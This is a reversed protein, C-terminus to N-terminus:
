WDENWQYGTCWNQLQTCFFKLDDFHALLSNINLVAMVFGRGFANITSQNGKNNTYKRNIRPCLNHSYIKNGDVAFKKIGKPRGIRGNERLYHLDQQSWYTWACFIRPCYGVLAFNIQMNIGQLRSLYLATVIAM